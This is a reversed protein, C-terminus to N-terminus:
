FAYTLLLALSRVRVTSQWFNSCKWGADWSRKIYWRQELEIKKAHDSSQVWQTWTLRSKALEGHRWLLGMDTRLFFPLKKDSPSRIGPGAVAFFDLNGQRTTLGLEFTAYASKQDDPQGTVSGYGISTQTSWSRLLPDWPILSKMSFIQFEELRANGQTDLSLTPSLLIMETEASSQGHAQMLAHSAPVWQILTSANTGTQRWETRWLTEGSSSNPNQAANVNLNIQRSTEIKQTLAELNGAFAESSINGKHRLWRNYAQLGAIQEDTWRSDPWQRRPQQNLLESRITQLDPLNSTLQTVLWSDALQVHTSRVRGAAHLDKVIDKPTSWGTPAPPLDGVLGLINRLVTACNYRHFYYTLESNKLEFLHNRILARELPTTFIEYHWLNRQEDELYKREELAYPTLSFLGEKGSVLSEWLLKPLNITDAQTYFSVAHQYHQGQRDGSLKLFSHGLISAPQIVSEDAFVLELTEFPAKSVFEKIEPCQETDLNPLQLQTQLWLTRAPFRCAALQGESNLMSLMAHLEAEPSFNTWTLLFKSNPIQPKNQHLHLLSKWAPLNALHRAQDQVALANNEPVVPSIQAVAVTAEFLLAAFIGSKLSLWSM